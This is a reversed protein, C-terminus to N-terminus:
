EWQEECVSNKIWQPPFFYHFTNTSKLTESILDDFSTVVIAVLILILM